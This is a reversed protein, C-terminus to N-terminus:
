FPMNQFGSAIRQGQVRADCDVMLWCGDGDMVVEWATLKAWIGEGLGQESAEISPQPQFGVLFFGCFLCAKTMVHWSGDMDFHQLINCSTAPYWFFHRSKPNFVLSWVSQDAWLRGLSEYAPQAAQEAVQLDQRVKERLKEWPLQARIELCWLDEFQSQGFFATGMKLQKIWEQIMITGRFKCNQPIGLTYRYQACGSPKHIITSAHQHMM